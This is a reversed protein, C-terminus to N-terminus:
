SMRESTMRSWVSYKVYDVHVIVVEGLYNKVLCYKVYDGHVVVNKGLDITVLRYDPYGVHVVVNDKIDITVLSSTRRLGRLNGVVEIRYVYIVQLYNM